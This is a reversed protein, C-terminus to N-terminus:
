FTEEDGKLNEKGSSKGAGPLCGSKKGGGGTDSGAFLADQYAESRGGAARGSAAFAGSPGACERNGSAREGTPGVSM